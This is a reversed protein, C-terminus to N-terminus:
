ELLIEITKITSHMFLCQNSIILIFTTIIISAPLSMFFCFSFFCFLPFPFRQIKWLNIRAVYIWMEKWSSSSGMGIVYPLSIVFKLKMYTFDRLLSTDPPSPTSFFISNCHGQPPPLTAGCWMSDWESQTFLPTFWKFWLM